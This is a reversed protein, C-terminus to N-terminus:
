FSYKSLAKVARRGCGVLRHLLLPKGWTRWIRPSAKGLLRAEQTPIKPLSQHIHTLPSSGYAKTQVTHSHRPQRLFLVAQLPQPWSGALQEPSIQTRLAPCPSHGSTWFPLNYPHLYLQGPPPPVGATTGGCGEAEQGGHIM